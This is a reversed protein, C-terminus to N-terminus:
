RRSSRLALSLARGVNAGLKKLREVNEGPIFMTELTMAFRANLRKFAFTETSWNEWGSDKEDLTPELERLALWFPDEHFGEAQALIGFHPGTNTWCHFDVFYDASGGTDTKIAEAVQRIDDMDAYLDERWVRNADRDEHQVTSRNYGAVRGDPNVMPYVFVEAQKRVLAADTDADDTLFSVLGEIAWNGLPENPHVGGLIVVRTRSGTKVPNAIRLAYLEHPLITRGGEAKGGPSMGIVLDSDSSSTPTVWPNEHISNVFRRVREFPYPIGYAIFVEDQAFPAELGFRYLGEDPDHEHMPFFDWAEGDYSFVMRHDDLRDSGPEFRNDIEFILTRGNVGRARFHLWKWFGANHNEFGVLRVVDGEIRSHAVDLSGSDFDIDLRVSDAM